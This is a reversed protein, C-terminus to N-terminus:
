FHASMRDLEALDDLIEPYTTGIRKAIETKESVSLDAFRYILDGDVIGRAPNLLERKQQRLLRCAKPNLDAVQALSTYLVNQLMFLRRYTKEHLPLLYGMAGDLTSFWAVQRKEWGAFFLIINRIIIVYSREDIITFSSADASSITVLNCPFKLAFTCKTIQTTWQPLESSQCYCLIKLNIVIM